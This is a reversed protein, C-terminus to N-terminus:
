PLIGLQQRLQKVQRWAYVHGRRTGFPNDLDGASIAAYAEDGVGATRALDFQWRYLERNAEDCACIPRALEAAALRAVTVRWAHPMQGSADLPLGALYRVTVRDPEACVAGGVSSWVGSTANYASAAPAVIGLQADVLGVRGVANATASPDFPSGGYPDSSGCACGCWGQCGWPHTDWTITAQADSTLLGAGNTTRQYVDLTTLTTAANSPDLGDNINILGQYRLPPVLLWRAGTITAFGGSIRITVPEIRWRPGVASSWDPGDFRSAAPVYVALQAPDTVASAFPGITFQEQYGDGDPDSLTVPTALAVATLAEVGIAQIQGEPLQVSLWRGTPDVGRLRTLSADLYRPWAVTAETYRPAVSYRLYTRLLTEANEIAVRIDSRSAVDPQQWGYEVVLGNCASQLRLLDNDAYGWFHWPQFAMIQRWSDLPLLNM